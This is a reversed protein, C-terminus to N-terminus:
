KVAPKTIKDSDVMSCIKTDMQLVSDNPNKNSVCLNTEYPPSVTLETTSTTDM